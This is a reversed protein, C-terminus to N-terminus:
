LHGLEHGVHRLLQPAHGACRTLVCSCRRWRMLVFGSFLLGVTAPEPVEHFVTRLYTHEWGLGISFPSGDAWRGKAIYYPYGRVDGEVIDLDYCFLDVAASDRADASGYTFGGRLELVASDWVGLTLSYPYGSSGGLLSVLSSGYGRISGSVSGGSVTFISDDYAFVQHVNGGIMVVNANDWVNVVDYVDGDQIIGDTHFDVVTLAQSQGAAALVVLGMLLM